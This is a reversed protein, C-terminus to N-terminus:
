KEKYGNIDIPTIEISLNGRPLRDINDENLITGIAGKIYKEEINNLPKRGKLKFNVIKRM